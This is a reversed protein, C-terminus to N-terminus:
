YERATTDLTILTAHSGSPQRGFKSYPRIALKLEQAKGAKPEPHLTLISDKREYSGSKEASSGLPSDHWQTYTGDKMFRFNDSGSFSYSKITLWTNEERIKNLGTRITAYVLVPCIAFWLPVARKPLPLQTRWLFRVVAIVLLIVWGILTAPLLLLTLVFSADSEDVFVLILVSVWLLGCATIFGSNERM